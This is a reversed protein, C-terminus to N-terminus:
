RSRSDISPLARAQTVRPQLLTKKKEEIVRVLIFSFKM